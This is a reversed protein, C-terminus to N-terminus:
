KRLPIELTVTNASDTGTGLKAQKAAVSQLVLDGDVTSGVRFPKAPKGDIAILATGQNNRTAVVGVLVMRSAANIAVAAVPAIASAMVAQGGGLAKAVAQLSPPAVEQLPLPANVM